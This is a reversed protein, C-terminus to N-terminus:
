KPNYIAEIFDFLDARAQARTRYVKLHVREIKEAELKFASSFKKRTDM